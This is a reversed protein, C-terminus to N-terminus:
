IWLVYKMSSVLLMFGHCCCTELIRLLCVEEFQDEDMAYTTGGTSSSGPLRSSAMGRAGSAVRKAKRRSTSREVEKEQLGGVSQSPNSMPNDDSSGYGSLTVVEEIGRAIEEEAM